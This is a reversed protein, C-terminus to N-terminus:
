WEVLNLEELLIGVTIVSTVYGDTETQAKVM